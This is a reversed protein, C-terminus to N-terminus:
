DPENVASGHHSSRQNETKKFIMKKRNPSNRKSMTKLNALSKKKKLKGKDSSTKIEEKNRLSLKVLYPTM